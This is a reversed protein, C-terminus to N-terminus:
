KEPILEIRKRMDPQVEKVGAMYAIRKATDPQVTALAPIFNVRKTMDPVVAAVALGAPTRLATASTPIAPQNTAPKQPPPPHTWPPAVVKWFSPEEGKAFHVNQMPHIPPGHKGALASFHKSLQELHNKLRNAHNSMDGNNQSVELADKEFYARAGAITGDRAIRARMAGSFGWASLGGGPHDALLKDYYAISDPWSDLAERVRALASLTEAREHPQETRDEALRELLAQTDKLAQLEAAPDPLAEAEACAVAPLLAAALVVRALLLM